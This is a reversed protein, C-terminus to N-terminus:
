GDTIAVTTAADEWTEFFQQYISGLRALRSIVWVVEYGM